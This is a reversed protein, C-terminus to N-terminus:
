FLLLSVKTTTRTKKKQLFLESFYALCNLFSNVACSSGANMCIIFNLFMTLLLPIHSSDVSIFELEVPCPCSFPSNRPGKRAWPVPGRGRIEIVKEREKKTTKYQQFM